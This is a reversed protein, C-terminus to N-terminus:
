YSPRRNRMKAIQEARTTANQKITPMYIIKTERKIERQQKKKSKNRCYKKVLIFSFYIVKFLIFSTWLLKLNRKNNNVDNILKTTTEKTAKMVIEIGKTLNHNMMNLEDVTPTRKLINSVSNIYSFFSRQSNFTKSEGTTDIESSDTITTPRANTNKITGLIICLAIVTARQLLPKRRVTSTMTTTITKEPLPSLETIGRKYIGTSTKISVVRTVGDNGTHKEVVRGLPWRQPPTNEEKLMVLQGVEIDPNQTLWKGRTQLQHM